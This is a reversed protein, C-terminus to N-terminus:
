VIINDYVKSPQFKLILSFWNLSVIAVETLLPLWEKEMQDKM